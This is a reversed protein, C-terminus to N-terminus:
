KKVGGKPRKNPVLNKNRWFTDSGKGDAATFGVMRLEAEIAATGEPVHKKKVCSFNLVAKEGAKMPGAFINGGCAQHPKPKPGGTVELQKGAKDYFYVILDGYLIELKSKNIVRFQPGKDGLKKTWTAEMIRTTGKADCPKTRTGKGESGEPCPHSPKKEVVKPKPAATTAVPPPAVASPTSAAPASATDKAEDCGGTALASL